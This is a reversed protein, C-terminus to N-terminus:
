QVRKRSQADVPSKRQISFSEGLRGRGRGRAPLLILFHLRNSILIFQDLISGLFLLLRCSKDAVESSSLVSEPTTKKSSKSNRHVKSHEQVNQQDEWSGSNQQSTGQPVESKMHLLLLTTSADGDVGGDAAPHAVWLYISTKKIQKENQLLHAWCRHSAKGLFCFIVCNM